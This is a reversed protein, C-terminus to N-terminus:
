LFAHEQGRTVTMKGFYAEIKEIIMTVAEPIAHSVKNGNVYWAVTCQTGEIM